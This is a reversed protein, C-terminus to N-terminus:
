QALYTEVNLLSWILLRHNDKGSLHEGILKQVTALDLWDYIKANRNMLKHKVFEISEGKFWSADPGSFGQKEASAVENPIYRRMVDRLIQKGDKTKQFHKTLKGPENENIRVVEALNNLKLKVPCNMAFNVLDNDM